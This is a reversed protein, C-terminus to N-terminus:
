DADRGHDALFDPGPPYEIKHTSLITRLVRVHELLDTFRSLMTRHRSEQERMRVRLAGLEDHMARRDVESRDLRSELDSLESSCEAVAEEAIRPREVAFRRVASQTGSRRGALASVVVGLTSLAASVVTPDLAQWNM